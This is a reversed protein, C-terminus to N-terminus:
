SLHQRLWALTDAYAAEAQEPSYRGGTDNFFAHDVGPYTKTVYTLGATKLASEVREKTANVRSDREAYVAFVAAKDGDFAPADPAPGYFPVAASLRPEPAALLDWVMGGGFCFGIAGLKAGPVRRALEDLASQMDSVLREESAAGLVSPAQAPDSLAATGGEESLLDVALSSYGDGALRTAVSRIHDTLGRNEHIVLMAGRPSMAASFFGQLAGRKGPFTIADGEVPRGAASTGRPEGSGAASAASGAASPTASAASGSASSAAPPASGPSAAASPASPAASLASPAQSAAAACAALLSAAASMSLGLLALRRLAERRTILGDVWDEAVEEALYDRHAM